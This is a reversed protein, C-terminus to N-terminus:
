VLILLCYDITDIVMGLKFWVSEYIDSHKGVKFNKSATLLVAIIERAEIFRVWTTWSLNRRWWILSWGSWICLTQYFSSFVTPEAELQGQSGWARDFNTFTTFFPLLGHHSYAHCTHFFKTWCNAHLWTKAMYSPQCAPQSSLCSENVYVWIINMHIIFLILIFSFVCVCVCVLQVLWVSYWDLVDEKLGLYVWIVM